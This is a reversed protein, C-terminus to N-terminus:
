GFGLRIPSGPVAAEPPVRQGLLLRAPNWGLSAHLAPYTSTVRPNVELIVPGRRTLVFDLGWLGALGPLAAAVRRALGRAEDWPLLSENVGLGILRASGEPWALHQTSSALLRVGRADGFAFLSGSPGELWPQVVWRGPGTDDNGQGGPLAAARDAVIRRVGMAGAGDDPKQVRCGALGHQSLEDPTMGHLPFTPVVPLGARALWHATALKSSAIRIAAPSSGLTRVGRIAALLTLVLLEGGCEPAVLLAEASAMLLADWEAWAPHRTVARQRPGPAGVLPQRPDPTLAEILESGCVEALDRALAARLAV